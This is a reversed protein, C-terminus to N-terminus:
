KRREISDQVFIIPKEAGFETLDANKATKKRWKPSSLSVAVSNQEKTGYNKTTLGSNM